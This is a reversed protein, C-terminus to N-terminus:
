LRVGDLLGFRGALEEPTALVRWVTSVGFRDGPWFTYIARRGCLVKTVRHTLNRDTGARHALTKYGMQVLGEADAHAILADLVRVEDVSLPSAPDLWRWDRGPDARTM